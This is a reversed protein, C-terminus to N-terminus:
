LREVRVTANYDPCFSGTDRRDRSLLVNGEPWHVQLNGPALAAVHVRGDYSGHGNTLRIRDGHTLRLSAADDLSMLVADRAAGTLPDTEAYIMTNFQKGRRTSVHFTGPERKTDPLAPARFHAKGDPTPFKGNKCLHRGGYQVADGTKELKEIGAYFPVVQAIEARIEQGTDCRLLHSREPWAKVALDRLIRWETRAEGLERPLQPSFAIRRETTTETGGGEQEYRTQAPLLITEEAADILMQDTVIIDQHVRLPVRSLAERIYDPDPLARLFNGGVAYLLDMEGRHAAEIMEPTSLGPAEPVDFGYQASLKGSNAANVPLGGPLATAYAGMEAGGQVGSHGRIPMLGCKDRGVFGKLLGLNLISQVADGGWPHQTIGMSWVFVGTRARGILAAFEEM